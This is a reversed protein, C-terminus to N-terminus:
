LVLVRQQKDERSSDEKHKIMALNDPKLELFPDFAAGFVQKSCSRYTVFRFAVKPKLKTNSALEAM